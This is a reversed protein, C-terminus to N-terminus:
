KPHGKEITEIYQKRDAIQGLLVALNDLQSKVDKKTSQLLTESDSIQKQLAAHQKELERIKKTSQACLSISVLGILVIGIMRKM